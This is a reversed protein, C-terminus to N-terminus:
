VYNNGLGFNLQYDNLYILGLFFNLLNLEEIEFNDM